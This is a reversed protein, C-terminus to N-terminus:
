VPQINRKVADISTAVQRTPSRGLIALYIQTFQTLLKVPPAHVRPDYPTASQAMVRAGIASTAASRSVETNNPISRAAMNRRSLTVRTRHAEIRITLAPM